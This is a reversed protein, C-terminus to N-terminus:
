HALSGPLQLAARYFSRSPPSCFPTSSACQRFKNRTSMLVEDTISVHGGHEDKDKRKWWQILEIYSILNDHNVDIEDFLAGRIADPTQEAM